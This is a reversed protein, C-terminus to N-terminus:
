HFLGVQKVPFEVKKVAATPAQMARLGSTRYVGASAGQSVFGYAQPQMMTDLLTYSSEFERALTRSIDKEFNPLIAKSILKRLAM